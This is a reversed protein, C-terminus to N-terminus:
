DNFNYIITLVVMWTNMTLVDNASIEEEFEGLFYGFILM